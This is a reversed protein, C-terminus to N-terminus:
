AYGGNGELPIDPYRDRIEQPVHKTAEGIVEISRLVAYLTKKDREFRERPMGTVFEETNRMNELIDRLYLSIKRNM